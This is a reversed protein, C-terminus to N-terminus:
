KNAAIFNELASAVLPKPARAGQEWARLTRATTGLKEACQEQTWNKRKRLIKLREVVTPQSSTDEIQNM